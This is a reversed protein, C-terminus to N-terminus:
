PATGTLAYVGVDPYVKGTGNGFIASVAFDDGPAGLSGFDWVPAGKVLGLLLEDGLTQIEFPQYAPLFALSGFFGGPDALGQQYAGSNGNPLLPQSPLLARTALFEAHINQAAPLFSGALPEVGNYISVHNAAPIVVRALASGSSTDSVGLGQKPYHYPIRSTRFDFTNRLRWFFAWQYTANAQTTEIEPLWLLLRSGLPVSLGRLLNPDYGPKGAQQDLAMGGETFMIPVGGPKGQYAGSAGGVQSDFGAYPRLIKVIGFQADALVNQSM